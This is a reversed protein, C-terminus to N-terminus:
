PLPPLTLEHCAVLKLKCMQSESYAASGTKHTNGLDGNEYENVWVKRPKPAIRYRYATQVFDPNSIEGWAGPSVEYQIAEGNAFATIIPLLEKAHERTM